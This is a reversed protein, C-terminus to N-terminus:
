INDKWPKEWKNIQEQIRGLNLRSKQPIKTEKNGIKEQITHLKNEIKRKEQKKM